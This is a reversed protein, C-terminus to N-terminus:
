DILGHERMADELAKIRRRSETLADALQQILTQNYTAGATWAQDVNFSGKFAAGTAPTFGTVQTGVVKVGNVSLSTSVGLPSSMEQMATESASIYDGEIDGVREELEWALYLAYDATSGAAAADGDAKGALKGIDGLTNSSAVLYMRYAPTFNNPLFSLDFRPIVIAM